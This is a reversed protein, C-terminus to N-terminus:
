PEVYGVEDYEGVGGYLAIASYRAAQVPWRCATATVLIISWLYSSCTLM